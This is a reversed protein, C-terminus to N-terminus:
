TQFVTAREDVAGDETLVPVLRERQESHELQEIM